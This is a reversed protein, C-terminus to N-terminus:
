VLVNAPLNHWAAEFSAWSPNDENKAVDNLFVDVASRASQRSFADMLVDVAERALPRQIAAL